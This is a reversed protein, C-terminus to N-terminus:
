CLRCWSSGRATCWTGTTSPHRHSELTGRSGEHHQRGIVDAEDAVSPHACSGIRRTCGPRQAKRLAATACCWCSRGNRVLLGQRHPQRWPQGDGRGLYAVVPCCFLMDSVATATKPVTHRASPQRGCFFSQGRHPSASKPRGAVFEVSFLWVPCWGRSPMEKKRLGEVANETNSRGRKSRKSSVM